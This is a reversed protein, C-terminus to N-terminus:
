RKYGLERLLNLRKQVDEEKEIGKPSFGDVVGLISSGQDTRAVIVQVPNATACYIHVVEQVNKLENIINIPFANKFLIIFSHGACIRMLNREAELKLTEDTGEIRILCAGSAEAFALGFKIGPVSGVMAEYLDVVTKIFGAHGLIVQTDDGKKIEVVEISKIGNGIAAM